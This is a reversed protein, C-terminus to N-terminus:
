FPKKESITKIANKQRKEITLGLVGYIRLFFECIEFFIYTGLRGVDSGKKEGTAGQCAQPSNLFVM